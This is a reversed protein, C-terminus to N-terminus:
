HQEHDKIESGLLAAIRDTLGAVHSERCIKLIAQAALATDGGKLYVRGNKGVLIQTKTADQLAALMSGNRGIIRPVKVSEVEILEGGAMKRAEILQANKVEDVALIKASMVDGVRFEERTEKSSLLGQYPSNLDTDFGAFREGTVIGVVLDGPIPTYQGKLPIVRGGSSLAVVGAYTKGDEIYCGDLQRGDSAVLDGPVVIRKDNENM